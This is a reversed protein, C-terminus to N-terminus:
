ARSVGTRSMEILIEAAEVDTMPMEVGGLMNKTESGAREDEQAWEPTGRAAANTGPTEPVSSSATSGPREQEVAKEAHRQRQSELYIHQVGQALEAPHAKFWWHQASQVRQMMDPPLVSTHSAVIQKLQGWTKISEPVALGLQLLLQPLFPQADMAGAKTPQQQVEQQTQAPEIQPPQLPQHLQTRLNSMVGPPLHGAMVHAIIHAKDATPMVDLKAQIGPHNM